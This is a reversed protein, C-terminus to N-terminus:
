PQGRTFQELYYLCDARGAKEEVGQEFAKIFARYQLPNGEFTPIDRPPLSLSRQQQVLAATIENQRGMIALIDASPNSSIQHYTAQREEDEHATPSQSQFPQATGLGNTAQQQEEARYQHRSATTCWKETEKTRVDKSLPKNHPLTWKTWDHQTSKWSEPKYETAMPNLDHASEMRRKEKEHYSNMGNSPAQSSSKLDSAKLIALKATSAALDMELDLRERKRRLQQEQEELAQREKLARHTPCRPHEM